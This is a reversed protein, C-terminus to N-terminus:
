DNEIKNSWILMIENGNMDEWYAEELYYEVDIDKDFQKVKEIFLNEAKKVIEKEYSDYDLIYDLEYDMPFSTISNIIGRTTEIINLIKM